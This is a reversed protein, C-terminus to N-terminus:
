GVAAKVVNSFSRHSLNQYLLSWFLCGLTLQTLAMFENGFPSARMLVAATILPIMFGFVITMLWAAIFHIRMQSYYLGIIPVLFYSGAVFRCATNWVRPDQENGFYFTLEGFLGRREFLFCAVLTVVVAAPLYQMLLAQVRGKIIQHVSLPTILILEMLGSDREHQFSGAASFAMGMFLIHLLLFQGFHLNRLTFDSGLFFTELFVFALCWTLGGIRGSWSSRQVWGIPNRELLRKMSNHFARKRIIPTCFTKRMKLALASPPPERWVLRMRRAAYAMGFLLVLASITLACGLGAFM